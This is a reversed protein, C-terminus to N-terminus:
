VLCIHHKSGTTLDPATAAAPSAMHRSSRSGPPTDHLRAAPQIQLYVGLSYTLALAVTLFPCKVEKALQASYNRTHEVSFQKVAVLQGADLGLRLVARRGTAIVDTLQLEQGGNMEYPHM